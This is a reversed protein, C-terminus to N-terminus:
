AYANLGVAVFPPPVESLKETAFLGDQAVKLMAVPSTLPVGVM